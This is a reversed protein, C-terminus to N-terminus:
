MGTCHRGDLCHKGVSYSFGCYAYYLFLKTSEKLLSVHQVAHGLGGVRQIVRHVRTHPFLVHVKQSGFALQRRVLFALDNPVQVRYLFCLKLFHEGTNLRDQLGGHGLFVFADLCTQAHGLGLALLACVALVEVLNLKPDLLGQSFLGDPCRAHDSGTVAGTYGHPRGAGVGKITPYGVARLCSHIHQVDM